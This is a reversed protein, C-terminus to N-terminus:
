ESTITDIKKEIEIGDKVKRYLVILKSITDNQLFDIEDLYETFKIKGNKGFHHRKVYYGERDFSSTILVKNISDIEEINTNSLDNEDDGSLFTKTKVDFVFIVNMSTMPMSGYSYIIFDKYGDFTVDFFYKENVVKFYDKSEYNYESPYKPHFEYKLLSGKTRTNKLEMHIEEVIDDYGIFKNEWYCLINNLLFLESKKTITDYIIESIPEASVTDIKTNENSSINQIASNKCNIFLLICCVIKLYKLM